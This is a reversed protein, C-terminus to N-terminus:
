TTLRIMTVNWVLHVLSSVIVATLISGSFFLTAVTLAGFLSHGLISMMAAALRRNDATTWDYVGEIVGFAIHTVLIDGGLYFALLTKAMEELVPGYTIVVTVGIYKLAARNLLFSLAAMLPAIIYAM